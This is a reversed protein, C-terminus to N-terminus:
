NIQERADLESGIAALGDYYGRMFEDRKEGTMNDSAYHHDYLKYGYDYGEQYPTQM